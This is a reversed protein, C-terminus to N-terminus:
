QTSEANSDVPVVGEPENLHKMCTVVENLELEIENMSLTILEPICTLQEFYPKIVATDHELETREKTLSEIRGKCLLLMQEKTLEVKKGRGKKPPKVEPVPEDKLVEESISDVIKAKVSKAREKKAKAIKIKTEM